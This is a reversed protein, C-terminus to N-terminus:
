FLIAVGLGATYDPVQGNLGFTLNGDLQITESLRYILGSGLAIQQTQSEQKRYIFESYGSWAENLNLSLSPVLTVGLDHDQLDYRSYMNMSLRENFQSTLSSSLAYQDDKAQFADDGTNLRAEAMVAWSMNEDDLDIKKKIAIGVDGVGDQETTQGAVKQKQWNYADWSVQLETSSTLGTRLLVDTQLTTSETRIQQVNTRDYSVTPLGQEWALQGVPVISTGFGVGPRDFEIEDAWTATSFSLALLVAYPTSNRLM